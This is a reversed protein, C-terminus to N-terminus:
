IPRHMTFRVMGLAGLLRDAIFKIYRSMLDSNRELEGVLPFPLADCAFERETDM